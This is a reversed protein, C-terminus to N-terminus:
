TRSHIEKADNRNEDRKPLYYQLKNVKKRGQKENYPDFKGRKNQPAKVGFVTHKLEYQNHM